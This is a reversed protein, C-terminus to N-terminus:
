RLGCAKQWIKKGRDLQSPPIIFCNPSCRVDLWPCGVVPPWASQGFISSTSVYPFLLSKILSKKLKVCVYKSFTIWRFSSLQSNKRQFFEMLKVKGMRYNQCRGVDKFDFRINRTPQVATAYDPMIEAKWWPIDEVYTVCFVCLCNEKWRAYQRVSTSKIKQGKHTRSKKWTEWM